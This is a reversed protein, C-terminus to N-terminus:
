LAARGDPALEVEHAEGRPGRVLLEAMEKDDEVVLANM